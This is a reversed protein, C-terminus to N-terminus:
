HGRRHQLISEKPNAVNAQHHDCVSAYRGSVYLRDVFKILVNLKSSQCRGIIIKYRWLLDIQLAVVVVLPLHVFWVLIGAGFHLYFRLKRPDQELMMTHRLEHLFWIMLIIRFGLSIWGPLTHYEDVEEVTNM